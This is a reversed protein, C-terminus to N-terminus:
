HIAFDAPKTATGHDFGQGLSSLLLTHLGGFILPTAIGTTDDTATSPPFSINRPASLSPILSM